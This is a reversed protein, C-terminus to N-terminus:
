NVARDGLVASARGLTRQRDTSPKAGVKKDFSRQARKRKFRVIAAARREAAVAKADNAVQPLSM